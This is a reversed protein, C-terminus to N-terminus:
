IAVPNPRSATALAAVLGAALWREDLLLLVTGAILVLMLAESYAFSLVFSGPFLAVLVMARSAVRDGYLRRTLVGTLLVFLAGLVLNAVLGALVDGGPLARDVVRLLLPFAPFFAARAEPDFYTVHAPVTHPYGHRAVEFYWLSDWSTLVNLM